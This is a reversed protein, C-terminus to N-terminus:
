TIVNDDNKGNHHEKAHKTNRASKLSDGVNKTNKKERMLYVLDYIHINRLYYITQTQWYQLRKMKVIKNNCHM